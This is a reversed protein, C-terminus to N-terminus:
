CKLGDFNGSGVYDLRQRQLVQMENVGGGHGVLGIAIM